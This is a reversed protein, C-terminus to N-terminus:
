AVLRNKRLKRAAIALGTQVSSTHAFGKVRKAFGTLNAAVPWDVYVANHQFSLLFRPSTVDGVKRLLDSQECLFPEVVERPESVFSASVIRLPAVPDVAM